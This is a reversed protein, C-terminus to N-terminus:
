IFGRPCSAAANGSVGIAPWREDTDSVGDALRGPPFPAKSGPPPCARVSGAARVAPCAGNGRTSGTSPRAEGARPLAVERAPALGALTDLFLFPRVAPSASSAPCAVVFMPDRTAPSHVVTGSVIAAPCAVVAWAAAGPARCAVIAWDAVGKSHCAVVAWAEVGLARCAVIAWDAVGKARCAVVPGAAGSFRFGVFLLRLAGARAPARVTFRSLSACTRVSERVAERPGLWM